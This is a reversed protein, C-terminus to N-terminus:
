SFKIKFLQEFNILKSVSTFLNIINLFSLFCTSLGNTKNSSAVTLNQSLNGDIRKCVSYVFCWNSLQLSQFWDSVQYTKLSKLLRFIRCWTNLKGVFYISWIEWCSKNCFRSYDLLLKGRLELSFFM